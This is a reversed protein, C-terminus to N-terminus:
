QGGFDPQNFVYAMGICTGTGLLFGAGIGITGDVNDWSQALQDAVNPEPCQHAQVLRTYTELNEIHKQLTAKQANLQGVQERLKDNAAQLKRLDAKAGTLNDQAAVTIAECPGLLEHSRNLEALTTKKVLAHTEQHASCNEATAQMVSSVPTSATLLLPILLLAVRM